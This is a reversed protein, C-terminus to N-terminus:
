CSLISLRADLTIRNGTQLIIDISNDKYKVKIRGDVRPTLCAKQLKGEQWYLDVEINGRAVLGTVHGQQWEKPLAPLLSLFGEHSQLLMEAMGACVGFNGDIQFPPHADFLNDYTGGQNGYSIEDGDVPHLQRKILKLAHDGDRLRAWQNVKWGLSWGTGGDGRNTLTV